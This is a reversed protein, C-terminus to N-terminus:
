HAALIGLGSTQFQSNAPFRYYPCVAVCTSTLGWEVQESHKSPARPVAVITSTLSYADLMSMQEGKVHDLAQDKNNKIKFSFAVDPCLPSELPFTHAEPCHLFLSAHDLSASTSGHPFFLLRRSGHPFPVLAQALSSSAYYNCPLLAVPHDRVGM